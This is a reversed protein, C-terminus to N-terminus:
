PKGTKEMHKRIITILQVLFTIDHEPIRDVEIKLTEKYKIDTESKSM